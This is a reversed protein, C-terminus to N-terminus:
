FKKGHKFPRSKNYQHKAFIAEALRINFAKAYDIGRIFLDALEIEESTFEPCHEDMIATADISYAAGYNIIPINKHGEQWKSIARIAELLESLESHMLAIMEGKNRNEVLVQGELGVEWFGHDVANSHIEDLLIHFASEILNKDTDQM